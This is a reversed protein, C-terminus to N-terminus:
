SSHKWYRSSDISYLTLATRLAFSLWLQNFLPTVLSTTSLNVNSGDMKTQKDFEPDHPPKLRDWRDFPLGGIQQVFLCVVM